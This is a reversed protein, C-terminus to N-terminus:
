IKTCAGFVLLRQELPLNQQRPEAVTYEKAAGFVMQATLAWDSPIDWTKKVEDDILPNYHQLNARMGLAELAVWMYYQHM